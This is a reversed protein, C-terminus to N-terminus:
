VGLALDRGGIFVGDGNVMGEQGHITVVTRCREILALCMPEDFRTSTIHLESNNRGQIGEFSYLSFMEGAIADAIQSTGEEILGGHPACLCFEASGQRALIRYDEGATRAKQLDAFSLFMDSM